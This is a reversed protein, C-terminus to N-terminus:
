YCVQSTFFVEILCADLQVFFRLYSKWGSILKKSELGRFWVGRFRPRQGLSSFQALTNKWIPNAHRVRIQKTSDLTDAKKRRLHQNQPASKEKDTLTSGWQLYHNSQPASARKFKLRPTAVCISKQKKSGSNLQICKILYLPIRDLKIKIKFINKLCKGVLKEFTLSM